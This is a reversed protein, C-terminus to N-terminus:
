LLSMQTDGPERIGYLERAMAISSAGSYTAPGDSRANPRGVWVKLGLGKYIVSLGNPGHFGGFLGLEYELHEALESDSMGLEARVKWRAAANEISHTARYFAWAKEKPNVAAPVYDTIDPPPNAKDQASATSM